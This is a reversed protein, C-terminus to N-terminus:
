ELGRAVEEIRFATHEWSDNACDELTDIVTKVRVEADIDALARVVDILRSAADRCRQVAQRVREESAIQADGGDGFIRDIDAGTVGDPYVSM